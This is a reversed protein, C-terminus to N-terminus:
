VETGDAVVAGKPVIIIGERIYFSGLPHDFNDVASSNLLKVNKGIRANKDVIARRIVTNSGIGIHPIGREINAKIEEISEYVDSGMVISNEIRVGGDVRSRLGIISSRAHVGNLI